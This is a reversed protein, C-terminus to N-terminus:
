LRRLHKVPLVLTALVVQIDLVARIDLVAPTDMIELVAPIGTNSRFLKREPRGDNAGM